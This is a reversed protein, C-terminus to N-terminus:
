GPDVSAVRDERRVRRLALVALLALGFEWVLAALFFPLVPGDSAVLALARALGTCGNVLLVLWLGPRFWDARMACMLLFGGLGIEGGGYFARLEVPIATGDIAGGVGLGALPGVPDHFFWLGFGIFALGSLILILAALRPM